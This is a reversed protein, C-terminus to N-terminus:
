RWWDRNCYVRERNPIYEGALYVMKFKLSGMGFRCYARSSESWVLVLNDSLSVKQDLELWEKASDDAVTGGIIVNTTKGVRGDTKSM